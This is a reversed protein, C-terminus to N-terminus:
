CHKGEAELDLNLGVGHGTCDGRETCIQGLRGEVQGWFRRQEKSVLELDLVIM